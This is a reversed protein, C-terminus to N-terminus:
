AVNRALNVMIADCVVPWSIAQPSRYAKELAETTVL